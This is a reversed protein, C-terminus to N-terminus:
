PQVHVLVLELVMEGVECLWAAEAAFVNAIIPSRGFPPPIQPKPIPFWIGQVFEDRLSFARQAIQLRTGLLVFSDPLLQLLQPLQLSFALGLREVAVVDEQSDQVKQTDHRNDRVLLLM